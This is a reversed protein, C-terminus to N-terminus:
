PAPLFRLVGFLVGNYAAHCLMPVWVSGTRLLLWGFYLGILFVETLGAISYGFHLATWAVSVLAAAPWLGVLGVLPVLLFGRFLMEEWLPAGVIIGLAAPLPAPTQALTRFQAFDSLFGAPSLAYALANVIVLLPVMLVLAYAFAMVGGEPPRMLLVTRPAGGYLGAVALTLLVIACQSFLLLFLGTGEALVHTPASAVGAPMLQGVPLLVVIAAPLTQGVILIGITALVAPWPPWAATPQFAPPGSLFRGFTLGSM